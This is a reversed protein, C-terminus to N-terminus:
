KNYVLTHLQIVFLDIDPLPSTTMLLLPVEPLGKAYPPQIYPYDYLATFGTREYFRIRKEAEESTDAPEVEVVVPKPAAGAIIDTLIQSGIGKDRFERKVALHEIYLAQPFLWVSFFGAVSNDSVERVIVFKFFPAESEILQVISEWPRREEEPFSGLYLEKVQDLTHLKEPTIIEYSLSISSM